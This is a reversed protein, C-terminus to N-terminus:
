ICINTAMMPYLRPKREKQNITEFLSKGMNSRPTDHTDTKNPINTYNDGFVINGITNYIDYAAIFTQQNVNINFYQHNYDVNKRDNIIIFLMPLRMEFKYFDYLFYVSPLTVGHDSMLFITSDKLLNDNFLSNLFNYIIDDTYKISELTGEHADNILITSYKRNIQYKRWFQNIYDFVYYSNLNGYLCRKKPSNLSDINPDCILLQHDYM